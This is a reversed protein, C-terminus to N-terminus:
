ATRGTTSWGFIAAADRLALALRIERASLPATGQLLEVARTLSIDTGLVEAVADGLVAPQDASRARCLTALMCGAVCSEQYTVTLRPALEALDATSVTGIVGLARLRQRVESIAAHARQMERLEAPLQEAFAPHPRFGFPTAFIFFAHEALRDAIGVLALEQRLAILQVAAQRRAGDRDSRDVVGDRVIFSKVEVPVYVRRERDLALVDPAIFVTDAQSSSTTLKLQPQILLDPVDLGSVLDALVRQTRRHRETMAAVSAGRVEVVLNRVTMSTHEVGLVPALTERLVSANDAYLHNEFQAGRRRASVREGYEGPYAQGALARYMEPESVRAVAM